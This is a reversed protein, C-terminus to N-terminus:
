AESANANRGQWYRFEQVSTVTLSVLNEFPINEFIPDGGADHRVPIDSFLVQFRVDIRVFFDYLVVAYTLVHSSIDFHEQKFEYYPTGAVKSYGSNEEEDDTTMCTIEKWISRAEEETLEQNFRLFKTFLEDSIYKM